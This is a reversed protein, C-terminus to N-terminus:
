RLSSFFLVFEVGVGVFPYQMQPYSADLVASPGKSLGLALSHLQRPIIVDAARFSPAM